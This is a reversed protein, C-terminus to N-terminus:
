LNKLTFAVIKEAATGDGFPNKSKAMREYLKEDQLLKEVWKIINNKNTGILMATGADIAEPRETNERMVLVPKGLGPAEEQVGGSDTMILYCKAMVNTFQIYDLPPLLYINPINKLLRTVPEQVNPNLHVPYVFNYDSYRQGLEKIAECINEFGTGFNERRHGTILVIRKNNNIWEFNMSVPSQRMKDLTYYLTDIVTNGTVLIHAPPVNETLLNNRARETPAFHLDAICSIVKRNFEEPFPSFINNTRLGAEVHAIKIKRYFAASASCMATTTDGQVLIMEPRVKEFYHDLEVIARANLGALTQDNQMLNLSYDPKIDFFDLLSMVMEKHQGTFCVDLTIDKEKKFAKIVSAMKIVEPRTGFIISVKIM